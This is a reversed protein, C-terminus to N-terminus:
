YLVITPCCHLVPVNKTINVTIIYSICLYFIRANCAHDQHNCLLFFMFLIWLLLTFLKLTSCWHILAMNKTILNFFHVDIFKRLSLSGFIAYSSCHVVVPINKTVFYYLFILSIRLLLTGLITTFCCHIVPIIRSIDLVLYVSM